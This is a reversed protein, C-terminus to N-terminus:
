PVLTMGGINGGGTETFDPLLRGAADNYATKMDNVAMTLMAPTPSAYDAAYVRGIVLPSRSFQNSPDMVLGFGTMATAAIPSVGIDGVITTPGTTTIGSQTLLTFYGATGLDVTPTALATAALSFALLSSLSRQHKM